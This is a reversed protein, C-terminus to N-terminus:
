TVEYFTAVSTKIGIKNPHMSIKIAKLTYSTALIERASELQVQVDTAKVTTHSITRSRKEM